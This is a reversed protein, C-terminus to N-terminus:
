CDKSSVYNDVEEVFKELSAIGSGKAEKYIRADSVIWYRHVLMNRLAALKEMSEATLPSIVGKEAMKQFTDKYTDPTVSFKKELIVIGINAAAEVAQIVSYRLSYRHTRSRLFEEETISICTHMEDIAERLESLYRMVIERVSM